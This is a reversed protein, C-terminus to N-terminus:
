AKGERESLLKLGLYMLIYFTKSIDVGNFFIMDEVTIGEEIVRNIYENLMKM